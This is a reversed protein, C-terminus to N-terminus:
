LSSEKEELGWETKNGTQHDVKCHRVPRIGNARLILGESLFQGSYIIGPSKEQYTCSSMGIGRESPIARTSQNSCVRVMTRKRYPRDPPVMSHSGMMRDNRVKATKKAISVSTAESGIIGSRRRRLRATSKEHKECSPKM